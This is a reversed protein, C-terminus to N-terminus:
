EHRLAVIPDSNAARRAPLYCAVGSTLSLVMLVIGLAYPDVPSIGFLLHRLVGAIAITTGLGILVGVIVPRMGNAFVWRVVDGPMAGLAIRLGIDKTRRTVSYSVVGYVGVGGLLLAVIAFALILQMQFRRQAVSASVIERMTRITPIPLRSDLKRLTARIAPVLASPEDISRAVVTMPGSAWQSHPRYILPPMERDISAPRVDEAVGIVSILPGKVDGQRLMRGVAASMSEGPWLRQALSASIVAVPTQEQHSFYRGAQLTTGSAAFYGTTVSRVMAVPRQMVLNAYDTDTAHFIARSAGSSGAVAPLDSIAGAALIGPIARVSATLERYFEIRKEGSAYRDGFLSLDVALVREIQYGRDVQMVKVFSHLLLAACALLATALAMEVCVLARRSQESSRDGLVTRAHDTIDGLFAKRDAKWAPITGCIIAMALSAFSAFLMAPLGVPTGAFVRIDDPGRAMLVASCVLALIVGFIGGLVAILLSEALVQTLIRSRQAGLAIRTAFEAARSATRALFLNAINAGATLLLLVSALFVMLLKSRVNGTYIERIPTLQPILDIKVGLVQTRFFENLAAHLQQRGKEANEGPRLRVLLGHDWSEGALERNTPAIPKWIDVRPAFALVPHLQSGTPVLLAPSAVGVVVYSASNIDIKRGVVGPDSGYRRRWLADSIVVVRDNGPREEDQLFTRGHVIPVGLFSFFNSSVRAGGLREPEADGSVNCEWPTLASMASFVTETKRWNLYAQITVPLSAFQSRREPMVVEVSFIQDPESYPLPKMLVAYLVAFIATNAGVGLALTLVAAISFGANRRLTRLAYRLDRLAHDFWETPRQDRCEDKALNVAGFERRSRLEAEERSLGQRVYDDIQSDLHFRFEADMKEEWQRRRFWRLWNM